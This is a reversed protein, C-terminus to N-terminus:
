YACTGSGSASHSTQVLIAARGTANSAGDAEKASSQRVSCAQRRRSIPKAVSVCAAPMEEVPTLGLKDAYWARARAFDQAPIMATARRDALM